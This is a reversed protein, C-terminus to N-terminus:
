PDANLSHLPKEGGFTFTKYPLEEWHQGTVTVKSLLEKASQVMSKYKEGRYGIHTGSDGSHGYDYGKSLFTVRPEIVRAAHTKAHAWQEFDDKNVRDPLTNPDVQILSKLFAFNHQDNIHWQKFHLSQKAAFFVNGCGAFVDVFHQGEKPFYSLLWSTM